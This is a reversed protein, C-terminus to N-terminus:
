AGFQRLHHDLHKAQLCSWQAGTMPGLVAQNPWKGRLDRLSMEKILSLARTKEWEFDYSPARPIAEKTTPAGKPWPLNLVAWRLFWQPMKAREPAADVRGIAIELATNVHWLMQDVSMKGWQRSSKPTLKQLRAELATRTQADHLMSM